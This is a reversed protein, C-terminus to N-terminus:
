RGEKESHGCLEESEQVHRSRVATYVVRFRAEEQAIARRIKARDTDLMKRMRELLVDLRANSMAEVCEFEGDVWVYLLEDRAEHSGPMGEVLESERKARDPEHEVEIYQRQMAELIGYAPSGPCRPCWITPNEYSGLSPCHFRDVAEVEQNCKVCLGQRDRLLRRFTEAPLVLPQYRNAMLM